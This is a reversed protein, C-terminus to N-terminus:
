WRNNTSFCGQGKEEFESYVLGTIEELIKDDKLKWVRIRPVFKRKRIKTDKIAMVSVLLKYKSVCRIQFIIANRVIKKTEIRVLM